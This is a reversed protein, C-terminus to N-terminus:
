RSGATVANSNYHARGLQDDYHGYTSIAPTLQVELGASVAASDPGAQSRLIDPRTGLLERLQRNCAKILSHKQREQITGTGSRSYASRWSVPQGPPAAKAYWSPWASSPSLGPRGGNRSNTRLSFASPPLSLSDPLRRGNAFLCSPLPNSAPCKFLM